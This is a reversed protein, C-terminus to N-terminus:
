TLQAAQGLVVSVGDPGTMQRILSETCVLLVPNHTLIAMQHNDLVLHAKENLYKSRSNLRKDLYLESLLKDEEPGGTAMVYFFEGVQAAPSVITPSFAALGLTTKVVRSTALSLKSRRNYKHVKATIEQIVPDTKISSEMIYKVKERRQAISWPRQGYAPEPIDITKRWQTLEALANKAAEPGVLKELTAAAASIQDQGDQPDPSGLGTALQLVNYTVELGLEDVLKQRLYESSSKDKLKLKEELIVDGAESS